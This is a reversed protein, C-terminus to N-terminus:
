LGNRYLSGRASLVLDGGNGKTAVLNGMADIKLSSVYPKIRNVILDRVADEAGSPGFCETLKKLFIFKSKDM